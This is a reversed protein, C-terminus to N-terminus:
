GILGVLQGATLTDGVAVSFSQAHSYSTRLAVAGIMGHDVVLRNGYGGSYGVEIVTGAAAAVIATGCAAGIDLGDHFRWTGSIPHSRLGFASTVVGTAPNILGAASPAGTATTIELDIARQRVTDMDAGAILRIKAPSLLDLPNLYTESRRLGWHLCTKEPCSAHGPNLTGIVQGAQIADGESVTAVVPEYTTMVDGHRLSVVPRGAVMGAFSVQGALAAKVPAGPDGVIDVGRHGALWPQDPPDFATIVDGLLPAVGRPLQTAGLSTEDAQATPTNTVLLLCLSIIATIITKM